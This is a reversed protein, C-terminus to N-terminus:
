VPSPEEPALMYQDWFEKQSYRLRDGSPTTVVFDGPCLTDTGDTLDRWNHENLPRQCEECVGNDGDCFPENKDQPIDGDKFWQEAEIPLPRHVYKPM